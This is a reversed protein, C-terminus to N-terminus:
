HMHLTLAECNVQKPVFVPYNLVLKFYCPSLLSLHHKNRNKNNTITWNCDSHNVNCLTTGESGKTSFYFKNVESLSRCINLTKISYRLKEEMDSAQGNRLMFAKARPKVKMVPAIFLTASDVIRSGASAWPSTLSPRRDKVRCFSM